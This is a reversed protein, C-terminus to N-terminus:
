LLACLSFWYLPTVLLKCACASACVKEGPTWWSCNKPAAGYPDVHTLHDNNTYSGFYSDFGRYTPTYKRQFFGQHWKGFAHTKYGQEKLLAPIMKYSPSLGCKVTCMFKKATANIYDARCGTMPNLNLETQQGLHYAYRGVLTQSRSPSCFKFVNWHALRVGSQALSQLNPSIMRNGSGSFSLDNYGLDDALLLVINPKSSIVSASLLWAFM